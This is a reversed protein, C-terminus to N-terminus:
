PLQQKAALVRLVAADVKAAFVPDARARDALATAMEPIVTPDASALVMDCGADVALVAREAPPWAAVQATASVDDTIVVGTFGLNARLLDGVVIPSFAAPATPDIRTYVVTSVMVFAPDAAIGARFVDVPDSTDETTHDVVHATDDTNALVRGLGPFHKIAVDVGAEAMGASFANAHDLVVPATTGYNRHVAGIPPNSAPAMTDILDMVPALNLNVGAAALESGWQAAQTHLESAPIEAQDTAAPIQSFGSGRLVQVLGGEQDTAVFLPAGHTTTPSVLARYGDVLDRTATVGATSRGALFINGVHHETIAATSIPAPNRVDVGAMLLQGVKQEVSWEALGASPLPVAASQTPGAAASPTPTPAPRPPPASPATCGALILAGVLAIGARTRM